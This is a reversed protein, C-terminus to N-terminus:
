IDGVECFHNTSVTLETAALSPKPNSNRCESSATGGGAQAALILMPMPGGLDRGPIMQIAPQIGTRLIGAVYSGYHPWRTPAAANPWGSIDAVPTTTAKPRILAGLTNPWPRM